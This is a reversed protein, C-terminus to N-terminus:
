RALGLAIFGMCFLGPFEEQINRWDQRIQVAVGLGMGLFCM